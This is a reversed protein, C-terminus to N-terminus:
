GERDVRALVQYAAHADTAALLENRVGENRFIRSLRALIRLHDSARRAPGIVAFIIHVPANDVADFPVGTPSILLAAELEDSGAIRGHPIAVGSGVGTSALQEREQLVALVSAVELKNSSEVFLEAVARLAALKSEAKVHTRVRTESLIDLLRM